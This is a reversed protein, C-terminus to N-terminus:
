LSSCVSVIGTRTCNLGRQNTYHVTGNPPSCVSMGGVSRCSLGSNPDITDRATSGYQWGQRLMCRKYNASTTAGNQVAGYRQDCVRAAAQLKADQWQGKGLWYYTSTDARAAVSTLVLSAVIILKKM